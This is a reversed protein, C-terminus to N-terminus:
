GPIMCPLAWEEAKKGTSKKVETHRINDIIRVAGGPEIIISKDGRSSPAAHEELRGAQCNEGIKFRYDIRGAASLKLKKDTRAGPPLTGLSFDKGNAQLLFEDIAQGSRNEVTVRYGAPPSCAALLAISLLLVLFLAGPPSPHRNSAM